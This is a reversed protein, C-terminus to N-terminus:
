FFVRAKSWKVMALLSGYSIFVNHNQDPPFGLNYLRRRWVIELEM